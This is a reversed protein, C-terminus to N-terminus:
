SERCSIGPRGMKRQNLKEGFAMRGCFWFLRRKPLFNLSVTLDFCFEGLAMGQWMRLTSSWSLVLVRESIELYLGGGGDLRIHETSPAQSFLVFVGIFCVKWFFLMQKWSGIDTCRCLQTESFRLAEQAGM